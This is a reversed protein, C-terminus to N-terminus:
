HAREEDIPPVLGPDAGLNLLLECGGIADIEQAGEDLPVAHADQLLVDLREDLTASPHADDRRRVDAGRVPSGKISQRFKASLDLDRVLRSHRAQVHSNL